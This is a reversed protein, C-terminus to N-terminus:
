KFIEYLSSVIYEQEKKKLDPYIPLRILTESAKETTPFDGKRYGYMKKAYPSLHLPQFHFTAKIGKKWLKKLVFDRRRQSFVRFYAIHWNSDLGDIFSPLAIKGEKELEKLADMYAMGIAKRKNLIYESNNLQGLLIAALVESLVYSSGIDIWTYKDVKGHLFASRNTGKERAIEVRDAINKNDTVLAGGEGCSVNKTEHFSFCGVDGMSGLYRDRYKSGFAQAADEILRLNNKKAISRIKTMSCPVGAYHICIIAKTKKTIAKEIELPAINLSDDKIDVFVPRAELRVIANAASVFSFSPLIVEDGRMIGVVMLAMELAHTCSTTLFAYKVGLYKKLHEEVRRGIPGNGGIKGSKIVELIFSTEQKGICTKNFSIKM